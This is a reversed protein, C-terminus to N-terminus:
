GPLTTLMFPVWPMTSKGAGFHRHIKGHHRRFDAIIHQNMRAHGDLNHLFLFGM